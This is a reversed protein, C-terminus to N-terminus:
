GFQQPQSSDGNGALIKNMFRYFAGSKVIEKNKITFLM